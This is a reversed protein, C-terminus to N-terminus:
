VQRKQLVGFALEVRRAFPRFERERELRAGGVGARQEAFHQEFLTLSRFGHRRQLNGDRLVRVVRVQPKLEGAGILLAAAPLVGSALEGFGPSQFILPNLLLALARRFWLAALKISSTRKLRM